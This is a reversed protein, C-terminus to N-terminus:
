INFEPMGFFIINGERIKRENVEMMLTEMIEPNSENKDGNPDKYMQNSTMAESISEAVITKFEDISVKTKITEELDFIRQEYNM